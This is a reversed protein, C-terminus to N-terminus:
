DFRIEEIKSYISAVQELVKELGEKSLQGSDPNLYTEM